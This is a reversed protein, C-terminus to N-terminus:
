GFVTKKVRKKFKLRKKDQNGARDHATSPM